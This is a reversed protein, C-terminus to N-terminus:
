EETQSRLPRVTPSQELLKVPESGLNHHLVYAQVLVSFRKVARSNSDREFVTYLTTLAENRQSNPMKTKARHRKEKVLM